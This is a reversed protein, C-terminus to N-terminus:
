RVGELAAGKPDAPLALEAEIADLIEHEWRVHGHVASWSPDRLLDARLYRVEVVAALAGEEMLFMSLRRTAPRGRDTCPQWGSRIRFADPELELDGYHRQVVAVIREFLDPSSPGVELLAPRYPAVCGTGIALLCSLARRM